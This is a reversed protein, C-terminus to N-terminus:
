FDMHENVIFLGEMRFVRTVHSVGDRRQVLNDIISKRHWGNRCRLKIGDQMRKAVVRSGCPILGIDFGRKVLFTDTGLVRYSETEPLVFPAEPENNKRECLERELARMIKDLKEREEHVCGLLAAMYARTEIRDILGSVYADKITKCHRTILEQPAKEALATLKQRDFPIRRRTQVASSVCQGRSVFECASAVQETMRTKQAAGTL